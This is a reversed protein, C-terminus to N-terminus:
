LWIVWNLQDLYLGDVALPDRLDVPPLKPILRDPTLSPGLVRLGSTIVTRAQFPCM